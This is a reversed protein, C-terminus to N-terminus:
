LKRRLSKSSSKAMNRNCNSDNYCESLPRYTPYEIHFERIVDGNKESVARVQLAATTIMKVLRPLHATQGQQKVTLVIQAKQFHKVTFIKYHFLRCSIMSSSMLRQKVPSHHPVLYTIQPLIGLLSCHLPM